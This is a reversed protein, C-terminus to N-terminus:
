KEEEEGEGEGELKRQQRQEWEGKRLGFILLDMVEGKKEVHGKLCGEREFGSKLLCKVSAENGDFVGAWLRTIGWPRGQSVEGERAAHNEFVYGVFAELMESM